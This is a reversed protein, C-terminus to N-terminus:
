KQKLSCKLKRLKKKNKYIEDVSVFEGVLFSIIKM